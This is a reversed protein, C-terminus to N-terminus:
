RSILNLILSFKIVFAEFRLGMRKQLSIFGNLFPENPKLKSFTLPTHKHSLLIIQKGMEAIDFEMRVYGELHNRAAELPYKPAVRLLPIELEVLKAGSPEKRVFDECRSEYNVVEMDTNACGSIWLVILVLFIKL